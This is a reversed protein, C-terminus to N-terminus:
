YRIMNLFLWLYNQFWQHNKSRVISCVFQKSECCIGLLYVIPTKKFVKITVEIQRFDIFFLPPIKQFRNVVRAHRRNPVNATCLITPHRARTNHRLGDLSKDIWVFVESKERWCVESKEEEIWDFSFSLSIVYFWLKAFLFLLNQRMQITCKSHKM